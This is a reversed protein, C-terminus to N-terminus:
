TKSAPKRLYEAELADIGALVAKVERQGMPPSTAHQILLVLARDNLRGARLKRVGQAIALVADAIIETTVPNEGDVVKVTRASM